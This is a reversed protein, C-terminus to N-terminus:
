NKREPRKLKIAIRQQASFNLISSIAKIQEDAHQETLLHFIAQKLFEQQMGNIPPIPSVPSLPTTPTASGYQRLVAKSDQLDSKLAEIQRDKEQSFVVKGELERTKTQEAVLAAYLRKNEVQYQQLQLLLSADCAVIGISSSECVKTQWGQLLAELQSTHSQSQDLAQALRTKNAMERAAQQRYRDLEGKLGSLEEDRAALLQRTEKLAGELGEVTARLMQGVGEEGSVQEEGSIQEESEEGDSTTNLAQEEPPRQEGGHVSNSQKLHLPSEVGGPADGLGEEILMLLDFVRKVPFNARVELITPM